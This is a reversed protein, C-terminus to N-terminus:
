LVSEAVYRRMSPAVTEVHWQGQGQPDVVYEMIMLVKSDVEGTPDMWVMEAHERGYKHYIRIPHDLEWVANRGRGRIVKHISDDRFEVLNQYSSEDASYHEQLPMTEAFRNVYDKKLEIAFEDEGLAVVEMYYRAFKEAQNALTVTKLWPMMFGCMGFGAALVLGIMAARTGIPAPGDSRRLAVFGLVFAILPFVLMPRGLFCPISLVGFVLCMFGSLRLPTASEDVEYGAEAHMHPVQSDM